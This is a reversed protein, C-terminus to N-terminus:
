LMWISVLALGLISGTIWSPWEGNMSHSGGTFVTGNFGPYVTSSSSTSVPTAFGGLSAIIAGLGQGPTETANPNGTPTPAGLLVTLAETMGGVVVSSGGSVLSIVTGSVTIAPGGAILTQTEVLYEPVSSASLLISAAQTNGNIVVSSRGPLLSLVTGSVTIEPGGPILTQTGLVYQTPSPSAVGLLETTSTGIAIAAGNTAFSYTTGSITVQGGPTLTYTGYIFASASNATITSGAISVILSQQLSDNGVASSSQPPPTM